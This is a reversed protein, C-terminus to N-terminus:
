GLLSALPIRIIHVAGNDNYAKFSGDLQETLNSILSMGLSDLNKDFGDGFGPGNDKCKIILDDSIYESDISFHRCEEENHVHKFFNSVVENIILGLPIAAEMKVMVVAPINVESSYNSGGYINSINEIVFELYESLGVSKFNSTEYMKKHVLSMSEVRGQIERMAHKTKVDEISNSQLNILSVIIQLNNRVRHHVEKLLVIKEDNQQILIDKQRSLEETRTEVKKELMEKAEALEKTKETVEMLATELADESERNLKLIFVTFVSGITLLSFINAIRAVPTLYHDSFDPSGFLQYEGIAISLATLPLGILIQPLETKVDFLVMCSAFILIAQIHYLADGGILITSVIGMSYLSFMYVWKSIAFMGKSNLYMLVILIFCVILFILSREGIFPWVFLIQFLTAFFGVFLVQNFFILRKVSAGSSRVKEVGINSIKHWLSM